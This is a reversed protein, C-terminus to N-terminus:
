AAARNPTSAAAPKVMEVPKVAWIKKTRNKGSMADEMEVDAFFPTPIHKYKQVETVDGIKYETTSTGHATGRSDDLRIEVIMKTYDFDNGDVSGKNYLFGTIKLRSIYSTESHSM